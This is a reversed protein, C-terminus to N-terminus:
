TQVSRRFAQVALPLTVAGVAAAALFAEGITGWQWGDLMLARMGDVLYSVPNV